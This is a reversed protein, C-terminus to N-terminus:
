RQNEYLINFTLIKPRGEVLNIVKFNERLIYLRHLWKEYTWQWFIVRLNISGATILPDLPFKHYRVVNKLIDSNLYFSVNFVLKYIPIDIFNEKKSLNRCM